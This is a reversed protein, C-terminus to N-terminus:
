SAYRSMCKSTKKLINQYHGGTQRIKIECINTLTLMHRVIYRSGLM